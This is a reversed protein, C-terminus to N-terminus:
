EELKLAEMVENASDYVKSPLNKSFMDKEEDPVDSMEDCAKIIEEKTAPYAIHENLHMMLEEKKEYPMAGNM